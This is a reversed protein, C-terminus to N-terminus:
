LTIKCINAAVFIVKSDYYQNVELHNALKTKKERFGYLPVCKFTRGSYTM